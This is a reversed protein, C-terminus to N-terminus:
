GGSLGLQGNLSDSCVMLVQELEHGVQSLCGSPPTNGPLRGGGNVPQRSLPSPASSPLPPRPPAASSPASSPYAPRPLKAKLLRLNQPVSFLLSFSPLLDLV